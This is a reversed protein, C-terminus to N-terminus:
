GLFTPLSKGSWFEKDVKDGEDVSQENPRDHRKEMDKNHARM